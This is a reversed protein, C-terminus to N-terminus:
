ALHAKSGFQTPECVMGQYQWKRMRTVFEKFNIMESKDRDFEYFVTGKQPDKPPMGLVTLLRYLQEQNMNESGQSFLKFVKKAIKGSSKKQLGDNYHEMFQTALSESWFDGSALLEQEKKVEEPNQFNCPSCPIGKASRTAMGKTFETLECRGNPDASFTGSGTTDFERFVEDDDESAPPQGLAMLLVYLEPRKMYNKDLEASFLNFVLKSVMVQDGTKMGQDYAAKYKAGLAADWIWPKEEEVASAANTTVITM